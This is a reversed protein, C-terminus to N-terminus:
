ARKRHVRTVTDINRLARIVDALHKRNRVGITLRMTSSHEDREVIEIGEINTNEDACAAAVTALVGRQNIVDLVIEASFERDLDPAWEVDVWRDPAARFDVVNKCSPHHIVIGRGATIFGMIPDGPIPYCCKPITVVMGETGHILLPGPADGGPARRPTRELTDTASGVLARAVLPAPRVGLGINALLEDMSKLNFSALAARVRAPDLQDISSQFNELERNLMRKGLLGAEDEHLNKLFHRINARAKGTVVFTLWAPNPRAGPATVIEVTDGTKLRTRVPALRRNIRCGVCKNGIDTHIAYALDIATAGRPLEMIEGKPTFVYVEDPFLDVKVNELFEQSNGARRQLEIVGRLWERARKHASKAASDGTKYLWHAAIGAEAVHDMENTRIQVEIPVGFPGFLVTHLSQYGNAKPIAIYDKFTGPVPKYLGHIVGLTRYCTDVSDVIIRFAYVDHVESLHLHKQRMKRYISYLHKERGIVHAVLEEQRLHRKIRNKIKTVVESRNGRIRQIFRKLVDHRQPYLAQFGLEELELRIANMGLRQAIPAYIDLTERAIRRRKDPRLAGLTRMNHLRDALKVLIVRIDDAMAMLMKQFNQAQAEAHSEFEIQTLKSLGDVIDAVEGGFQESIVEKPVLSDEIVDHLMAAILTEHDMHMEALIGAVALPHMMYPEGSKRTQGEHAEAGFRYARRLDRIQELTLYSRVRRCLDDIRLPPAELQVSPTSM